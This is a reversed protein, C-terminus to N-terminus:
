QLQRFDKRFIERFFIFTEKAKQVAQDEEEASFSRSELEKRFSNWDKLNERDGNFFHQQQIGQLKECQKLNKAIVMGGLASGEVVYAAGLAEATNRCEFYTNQATIKETINLDELDKKLQLHKTGSFGPLFNKIETETARYAVYNQLLLLKYQEPDMSHDMIFRALNEQEVEEHLKRTEEKLRKIM